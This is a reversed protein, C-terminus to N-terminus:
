AGPRALQVFVLCDRLARGEAHRSGRPSRATAGSGYHCDGIAVEGDLVMFLEDSPHDHAPIAAGARCRVLHSRDNWLRRQFLGPAIEIWPDEPANAIIRGMARAFVDPSGATRDRLAPPADEDMLAELEGIRRALAPRLLRDRELRRREAEPLSGLVYDVLRLGVDSM